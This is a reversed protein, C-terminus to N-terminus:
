LRGKGRNRGTASVGNRFARALMAAEDWLDADLPRQRIRHAKLHQKVADFVHESLSFGGHHTRTCSVTTSTGKDVTIDRSSNVCDWCDDAGRFGYVAELATGWNNPQGRSRGTM